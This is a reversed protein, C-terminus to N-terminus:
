ATYLTSPLHSSHVVDPMSTSLITQFNPDTLEKKNTVYDIYRWVAMGAIVIATPGLTQTTGCASAQAEASSYLTDEWRAVDERRRPDVSYIMGDTTGMRTEIMYSVYPNFKISRDWIDKRVDMSDVVLVVVGSLTHKDPDFFVPMVRKVADGTYEKIMTSLAEAKNLGVHQNGFAQNPVNHQEVHDGDWLIMRPGVGLKALYLGIHSGTAGCGVVHINHLARRYDFVDSHRMDNVTM